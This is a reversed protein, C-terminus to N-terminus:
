FERGNARRHFNRMDGTRNGHRVQSAFQAKQQCHRGGGPGLVFEQVVDIEARRKWAASQDCRGEGMGRQQSHKVGHVRPRCQAWKEGIWEEAMPDVGVREACIQRLQVTSGRADVCGSFAIGNQCLLLNKRKAFIGIAKALRDDNWGLSLSLCSM